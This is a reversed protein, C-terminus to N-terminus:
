LPINKFFHEENFFETCWLLFKVCNHAIAASKKVGFSMGYFKRRISISWQLDSSDPFAENASYKAFIAMSQGIIVAKM